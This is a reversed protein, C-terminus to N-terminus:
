TDLYGADLWIGEPDGFTPGGESEWIVRGRRITTTVRGALTWGEYASWGAKSWVDSRGFMWTHDPDFVAFDADKSIDITGKRAGIGFLDAPRQALHRAVLQLHQDVPVAPERRRLGTYVTVALEQVGPIGPPAEPLPRSKEEITHPAHDSGLTDIEGRVLADWLAERDATGRIAPSLRIRAGLRGADADTFSLHHGTVEFTVPLGIQRAATLLAVEEMSSVHLVHARTGFRRVLEIVRAVAVIAASRPRAPEMEAYTSPAPNAADLLAFVADDEAHLVLRIGREAAVAFARELTAPDRLVDPATHHGAMFIKVSSAQRPQLEHLARLDGPNAGLHFRFDVLSSGAVLEARAAVDGPDTLAPRTNPMDIVTTVGGAAAARGGHAWDEKHTLGPTRFHVHSDVLGPLVYRGGADIRRDARVGDTRDLLATIIGDDVAVAVERVGNPTVVRGNTLLLDHRSADPRPGSPM